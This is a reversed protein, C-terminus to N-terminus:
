LKVPEPMEFDPMMDDESPLVVNDEMSAAEEPMAMEEAAPPLVLTSGVPVSATMKAPPAPEFISAGTNSTGGNGLYLHFLKPQWMAAYYNQLTFEKSGPTNAFIRIHFPKPSWISNYYDGYSFPKSETEASRALVIQHFPKPSWISNYYAGYSVLAGGKADDDAPPEKAEIKKHFPTASWMSNYYAGYSWADVVSVAALLLLALASLFISHIM